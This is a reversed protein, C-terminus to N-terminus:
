EYEAALHARVARTVQPLFRFRRELDVPILLWLPWCFFGVAVDFALSFFWLRGGTKIVLDTDQKEICVEVWRCVKKWWAREQTRIIVVKDSGRLWYSEEKSALRLGAGELAECVARVIEEQQQAGGVCIIERPGIQRVQVFPRGKTYAGELAQGCRTCFTGRKASEPCDCSM